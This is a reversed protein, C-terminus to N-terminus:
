SVQMRVEEFLVSDAEDAPVQSGVPQSSPQEDSAPETSLQLNDANSETSLIENFIGRADTGLELEIDLNSTNDVCSISQFLLYLQLQTLERLELGEIGAIPKRLKALKNTWHELFMHEVARQMKQAALQPIRYYWLLVLCVFLFGVPWIVISGYAYVRFNKSMKHLCSARYDAALFQGAEALDDCVLSSFVM